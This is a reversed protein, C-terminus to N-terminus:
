HKNVHVAARTVRTLHPLVTIIANLNPWERLMLFLQVVDSVVKTPSYGTKHLHLISFNFVLVMLYREFANLSKKLIRTFSELTINM